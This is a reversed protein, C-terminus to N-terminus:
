DTMEPSTPLDGELKDSGFAMAQALEFKRGEDQSEIYHRIQISALHLQNALDDLEVLSLKNSTVSYASASGDRNLTAHSMSVCPYITSPSDTANMSISIGCLSILNHHETKM